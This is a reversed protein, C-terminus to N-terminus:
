RAELRIHRTATHTFHEGGREVTFRLEWRGSRRMPLPCAYVGNGAAAPEAHVIQGARANHFTAVAVRAGDLPQGSRDTLRVVLRPDSGATLPPAVEFDLQWGLELNHRDQAQRADWALAKQYYDEEVAYSPNSTAVVVTALSVVVHIALAAIILVPWRLRPPLLPKM